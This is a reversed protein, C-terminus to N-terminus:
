KKCRRQYENEAKLLLFSVAQRSVGYKAAISSTSMGNARSKVYQQMRAPMREIELGSFRDRLDAAHDMKYADRKMEEQCGPCIGCKAKTFQGCRICPTATAMPNYLGINYAHQRNQSATVWELNEVRNDRTNGNKHNVQPLNDPNPIFASAILRHVYAVKHEKNEDQYSVVAYHKNRGAYSIKAPSTYQGTIRNVTGDPFVQFRGGLVIKYEIM